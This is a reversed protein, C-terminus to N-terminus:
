ICDFLLLLLCGTQNFICSLQFIFGYMSCNRDTIANYKGKKVSKLGAFGFSLDLLRIKKIHIKYLCLLLSREIFGLLERKLTNIWITLYFFIPSSKQVTSNAIQLFIYLFFQKGEVDDQQAHKNRNSLSFLM